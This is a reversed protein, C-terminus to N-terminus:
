HADKTVLHTRLSDTCSTFDAVIILASDSPPHLHFSLSHYYEVLHACVKRKVISNQEDFIYYFNCVFKLKENSKRFNHLYQSTLVLYFM